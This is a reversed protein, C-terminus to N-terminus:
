GTAPFILGKASFDEWYACDWVRTSRRILAELFAERSSEDMERRQIWLEPLKEDDLKQLVLDMYAYSPFYVIANGKGAAVMEYVADAIAQVSNERQDFRTCIRKRVVALHDPPFPSPLSFCADEASGGLLHRMVPLPSLTASFFVAGRMGKTVRAIENSPLLCLLELRREKGHDELLVAYSDDQHSQAYQFAMCIRIWEQVGAQGAHEFATELSRNVAEAIGAPIEKQSLDLNRIERILERMSRYLQNKRGYQKGYSSRIRALEASDLCGSLNDRVREVAHHAEDVLLTYHGKRQYIRKIQAFPDFLHNLDLMAVDALETLALALEFPCIGHRDALTKIVTEDWLYVDSTLLEDIAERQRIFHGRARPCEDPHCRMPAPCLRDKSLLVSCRAKMGQQRMRELVNLPSQRATNRATLYLIKETKGEGIAKLAPFLVAASKGTGTPLSAFLRKRRVIGTYVQAALERQGKRYTEFPFSLAKLSTDRARRHELERQAHRAFPMLLNEMEVILQEASLIEEFSHMIEGTELVYSVRFRVTCCPKELCIMAAYCLAQARHEPLLMNEQSGLKIEEVFPIEGDVCADMRGHVLVRLGDIEFLHSISKEVEGESQKQRAQHARTGALLASADAAPLIDPQFYSFAVLERVSIRMNEEM